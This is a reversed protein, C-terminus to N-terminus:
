VNNKIKAALPKYFSEYVITSTSLFIFTVLMSAIISIVRKPKKKREPVKPDDLVLVTPTERKEEIKSQEFLPILTTLIKNQIEVDRRIRLYNMLIEPSGQLNLKNESFPSNQISNLQNKLATIKDETTQIESQDPSLIKKLLELKIEESKIEAEIEIETRAAAQVQIDPAIGFKEQFIRLSDEIKVLDSKVLNYREEIFEKNIKANKVRVDVYISNLQSILFNVIEKATEPNEDYVGISITGAKKNTSIELIEDRFFKVADQMYKIDYIEMLGFKIITGELCKRSAIIEEYLALEKTSGGGSLEELGGLNPISSGILGSIGMGKDSSKVIASSYYVPKIVFFMLLTVIVGVILTSTLILKKYRIIIKLYAILADGYNFNTNLESKEAM